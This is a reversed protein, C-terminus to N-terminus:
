PQEQRRYGAELVARAQRRDQDSPTETDHDRQCHLILALEHVEAHLDADEAAAVLAGALIRADGGSIEYRGTVMRPADFRVQGPRDPLASVSFAPLQEAM